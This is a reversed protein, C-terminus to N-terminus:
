RQHFVLVGVVTVLNFSGHSVMSAVLSGSRYYVWALVLGGGALPAVASPSRPDLHALGFLIASAVAAVVPPTYRLLANFVFGRFTLEEVFPAAVVALFAFALGVGGHAGRLLDVATEEIKLHFVKQELAGIATAVVIMAIAGGLGWLLDSGRLRLGLERLSRRALVPLIWLLYAVQPVYTVLQLAVVIGLPITAVTFRGYRTAVYVGLMAAPVLYVVVYGAAFLLSRWWRFAETPWLTPSLPSPPSISRNM